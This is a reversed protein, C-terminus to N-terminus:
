KTKILTVVSLPPSSPNAKIGFRNLIECFAKTYRCDGVNFVPFFIKDRCTTEWIQVGNPDSLLDDSLKDGDFHDINKFSCISKYCIWYGANRNLSDLGAAWGIYISYFDSGQPSALWPIEKEAAELIESLHPWRAAEPVMANFQIMKHKSEICEKWLELNM